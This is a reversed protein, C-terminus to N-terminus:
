LKGSTGFALKRMMSPARKRSALSSPAKVEVPTVKVVLSPAHTNYDMSASLTVISNSHQFYVDKLFGKALGYAGLGRATAVTAQSTNGRVIRMLPHHAYRDEVSVSFVVKLSNPVEGPSVTGKSLRLSKYFERMFDTRTSIDMEEFGVEVGERQARRTHDADTLTPKDATVPHSEALVRATTMVGLDKFFGPCIKYGKEELFKQERESLRETAALYKQGEMWSLLQAKEKHGQFAFSKVLVDVVSLADPDKEEKGTRGDWLSQARQVQEIREKPTLSGIFTQLYNQLLWSSVPPRDVSMNYRLNNLRITVGHPGRWSDEKPGKKKYHFAQGNIFLRGYEDPALWKLDGHENRIDPNQLFRNEEHVGVENFSGLADIIEPNDTEIVYQVKGKEKTKETTAVLWDHKVTTSENPADPNAERMAANLTEARLFDYDAKWEQGLIAFRKVGFDRLFRLATQKLGIGNGGATEMGEPKESHPSIIGTPDRFPWHGTITFRVTEVPLSPDDMQTQQVVEVGNLTGPKEPNHDVFNQVLERVLWPADYTERSKGIFSDTAVPHVDKGEVLQAYRTILFQDTVVGQEAKERVDSFLQDLGGSERKNNPM